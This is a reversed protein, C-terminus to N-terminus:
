TKPMQVNRALRPFQDWWTATRTPVRGAAAIADIDAAHVSNQTDQFGAPSQAPALKLARVLFTAMQARTVPQDPCYLPPDTSCGVTIRVAAIADIDAAHVSNQTDQFRPVVSVTVPAQSVGTATQSEAHVDAYSAVARLHYGEDGTTPTYSGTGAADIPTWIARDQSREWRWGLNSIGGDPDELVAGFPTGVRPTPASLAVTGAEDEDTVVITVRILDDRGRDPEGEPNKSDRVGVTVSYRNNSEYDLLVKTQLQGSSSLLSFIDADPGGLTYALVDGEPDVAVLPDGINVGADSNEVVSRSTQSGGSFEPSQNSDAPLPAPGGSSGGGGSRGGNTPREPPDESRDTVNITVELSTTTDEDAVEITAQYTNNGAISAPLEYDPPQAFALRGNTLTFVGRDLGGISWTLPRREPDTARYTAIAGTSNEDVTVM